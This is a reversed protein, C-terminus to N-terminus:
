NNILVFPVGFFQYTGATRGGAEDIIELIPAVQGQGGHFIMIYAGDGQPCESIGAGYSLGEDELRKILDAQKELVQEIEEYSPYDQCNSHPYGLHGGWFGHPGCASLLIATVFLAIPLKRM